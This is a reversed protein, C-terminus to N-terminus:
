HESGVIGAGEDSATAIIEEPDEGAGWLEIFDHAVADDEFGLASAVLGVFEDPHWLRGYLKGWNVLLPQTM